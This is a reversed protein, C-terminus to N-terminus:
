LTVGHKECRWRYLLMRRTLPNRTCGCPLKGYKRVWRWKYSHIGILAWTTHWDEHTVEVKGTEDMWEFRRTVLAKVRHWLTKM